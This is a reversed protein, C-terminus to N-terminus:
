RLEGHHVAHAQAQSQAQQPRYSTGPLERVVDPAIVMQSKFHVDPTDSARSIAHQM